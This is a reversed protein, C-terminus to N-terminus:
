HLTVGTPDPLWDSEDLQGPLWLARALALVQAQEADSLDRGIEQTLEDLLTTFRGFRV